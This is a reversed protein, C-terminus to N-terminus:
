DPPPLKVVSGLAVAFATAAGTEEDHVPGRVMYGDVLYRAAARTAVPFEFEGSIYALPENNVSSLPIDELFDPALEGLSEPLAGRARRYREVAIGIMAANNFENVRAFNTFTYEKILPMSRALPLRTERRTEEYREATGTTIRGEKNLFLFAEKMDEYYAVRECNKWMSAMRPLRCLLRSKFPMNASKMGSQTTLHNLALSFVVRENMLTRRLRLDLADQFDLTEYQLFPLLEDPLKPLTAATGSLMMARLTNAAMWDLHAPSDELWSCITKMRRLSDLMTHADNQFDAAGLKLRYWGAWSALLGTNFYGTPLWPGKAPMENAPRFNQVGSAEDLLAALTANTAAFEQFAYFYGRSFRWQFNSVPVFKGAEWFVNTGTLTAYPEASMPVGNTYLALADRPTWPIGATELAQEEALNARLEFEADKGNMWFANVAMLVLPLWIWLPYKNKSSFTAVATIFAAAALLGLLQLTGAQSTFGAAVAACALVGLAAATVHRKKKEACFLLTFLPLPPIALAFSVVAATTTRISFSRKLIHATYFWSLALFYPVLPACVYVALGTQKVPEPRLFSLHLWLPLLVTACAVLLLFGFLFGWAPSDRWFLACLFRKM